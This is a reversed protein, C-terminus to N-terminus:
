RLEIPPEDGGEPLPIKFRLLAPEGNLPTDVPPPYKARCVVAFEEDVVGDAHGEGNSKLVAPNLGGVAM